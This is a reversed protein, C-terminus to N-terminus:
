DGVTLPKGSNVQTETLIALAEISAEDLTTVDVEIAYKENAKAVIRIFALSTLGQDFLDVAPDVDRGMVSRLTEDLWRRIEALSVGAGPPTTM